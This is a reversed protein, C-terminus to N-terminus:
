RGRQWLNCEASGEGKTRLKSDAIRVISNYPFRPVHGLFASTRKLPLFEHQHRENAQAVAAEVIRLCLLADGAKEV